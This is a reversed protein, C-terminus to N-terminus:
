ARSHLVLVVLKVGGAFKGTNPFIRAFSKGHGKTEIPWYPTHWNSTPKLATWIPIAEAAIPLLSLSTSFITFGLVPGTYNWWTIGPPKREEKTSVNSSRSRMYCMLDTHALAKQRNEWWTVSVSDEKGSDADGWFLMWSKWQLFERQVGTASQTSDDAFLWVKGSVFTVFGELVFAFLFLHIPSCTPNLPFHAFCILKPEYTSLIMAAKWHCSSVLKLMCYKSPSGSGAWLYVLPVGDGDWGKDASALKWLIQSWLKTSLVSFAKNEYSCRALFSHGRFFGKTKLYDMQATLLVDGDQQHSRTRSKSFSKGRSKLSTPSSSSLSACKDWVQGQNQVTLLAADCLSIM